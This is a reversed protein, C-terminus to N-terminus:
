VDERQVPKREAAEVALAHLLADVPGVPGVGRPQLVRKAQSADERRQSRGRDLLRGDRGNWEAPADAPVRGALGGCGTGQGLEALCQRLLGVTGAAPHADTE